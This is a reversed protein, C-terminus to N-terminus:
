AGHRGGQKAAKGAAVRAKRKEEFRESYAAHQSKPKLHNALVALHILQEDPLMYSIPWEGHTALRPVAIFDHVRLGPFMPHSPNVDPHIVTRYTTKTTFTRPQTNLKSM